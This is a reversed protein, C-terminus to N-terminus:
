CVLEKHVVVQVIYSKPLTRVIISFDGEMDVIAVVVVVSDELDVVDNTM